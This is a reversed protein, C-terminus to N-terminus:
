ASSAPRASCGTRRSTGNWRCARTTADRRSRAWEDMLPALQNKLAVLESEIEAAVGNIYTGAGELDTPVVLMASSVDPM